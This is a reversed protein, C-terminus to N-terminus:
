VTKECLAFRRDTCTTDIAQLGAQLATVFACDQVTGGDPQDPRWVTHDNTLAVDGNVWNWASEIIKDNLGIWYNGTISM